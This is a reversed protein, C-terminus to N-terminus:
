LSPNEKYLAHPIGASDAGDVRFAGYGRTMRLTLGWALSSNSPSFANSAGIGIM